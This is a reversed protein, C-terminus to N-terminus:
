NFWFTSGFKTAHQEKHSDGSQDVNIEQTEFQSEWNENAFTSQKLTNFSIKVISESVNVLQEIRLIRKDIISM